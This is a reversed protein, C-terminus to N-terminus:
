EDRVGTGGCSICPIEIHTWGKSIFKLGKGNCTLCPKVESAIAFAEKYAKRIEDFKVSNGGRDPHHIMSLKRWQHKVEYPKANENLGLITFPNSM